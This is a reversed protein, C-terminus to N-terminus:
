KKILVYCDQQNEASEAKKGKKCLVYCNQQYEASEAGKEKIYCIATKDTNLRSQRKFKNCNNM